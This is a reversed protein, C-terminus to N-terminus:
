SDADGTFDFATKVAGRRGSELANRLADRWRALPYRSTVLTELPPDFDQILRLALDFTTDADVLISM